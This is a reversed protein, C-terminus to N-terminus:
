QSLRFVGQQAASQYPNESQAVAAYFTLAENRNNMRELLEAYFYRVRMSEPALELAKQFIEASKEFDGFHFLVRGWDGEIAPNEPYKQAAERVVNFGDETINFETDAYFATQLAAFREDDPALSVTLAYWEAALELNDNLQYASAVEATLAPNEPDLLHADLFAQLSQDFDGHQRYHLGLMFYPLSFVPELAIATQIDNLGDKGLQDRVFGRYAFSLADLNDAEIQRTFLSEAFAYEEFEVLRLAVDWVSYDPIQIIGLVAAATRQQIGESATAKEIFPQAEPDPILFLGMWLNAQPQEPNIALVSQLTHAAGEWDGANIQNEAAILLAPLSGNDPESRVNLRAVRDFEGQSTFLQALEVRDDDTWGKEARLYLRVLR